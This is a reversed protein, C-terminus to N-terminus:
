KSFFGFRYGLSLGLMGRKYASVSIKGSDFMTSTLDGMYRVDAFLVGPGIKMGASMVGAYGIAASVTGNYSENASSSTMVANLPLGFFIGASAQLLYRGPCYSLNLLIPVLISTSTISVTTDYAYLTNGANDTVNERSLVAFSDATFIVETQIAIFDFLQATIQIAGDFSIGDGSKAANYAGGGTDYFHIGPGARLAAYLWKNKWDDEKATLSSGLGYRKGTIASLIADQAILFSQIGQIKATKVEIARIQFRYLDGIPDISGSIISEAGLKQGITQATEDSVEGSM